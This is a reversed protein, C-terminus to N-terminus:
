CSGPSFCSPEMPQEKGACIGERTITKVGDRCKSSGLHIAVLDTTCGTSYPVHQEARRTELPWRRVPLSPCLSSSIRAHVKGRHTIQSDQKRGQQSTKIQTYLVCEPICCCRARLVSRDSCIVLYHSIHIPLQETVYRWPKSTLYSWSLDSM